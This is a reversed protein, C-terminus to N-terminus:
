LDRRRRAWEKYQPHKLMRVKTPTVEVLEDEQIYEVAIDLNLELPPVIKINEDSGSARMNTLQKTRCVNVHLDGPRQHVGIIMDKYVEDKPAVFLRGREQANSIGFSNAVGDEFALLSGKERQQISGVVPRYSDFVTDLVVTGKTATLLASRVGIMGRTPVYFKLQTQGESGEAPGMEAMEGRRKNLIDVVASCYDNPVTIDVLEFPECSVGDVMREIVTPPGVMLEFGERRMNEILVTLHLQGRGCVEYTDASDTEYVRLAVNRDLEKFLRDRIVRSQLQKGERGALPSKNVSISMRVTPEEVAIPPLPSAREKEMITDGITIDPIGTVMVIDGASATDVKQKGVNNFVFLEGIRGKKYPEEGPKGYLVDDAAKIAGNVIRGIGMKGKFDDYDVNAILIQLPAEADVKAKPLKLIEGFLPYLNDQLQDPELGAKGQMGSAYVVKFDMQEDTAGLDSFLDFVRDLVYDPRIQPRDIKNIVVIAHVGKELAKKLVFRTQPKPGDVADVVLLVGDVMNMIREVEGGFDAHGPTDVLNIKTGEFMIAANKALITIGREKEQDNSDMSAVEQNQRFAGSQRIMADVLTTKGHDVHALLIAFIYRDILQM